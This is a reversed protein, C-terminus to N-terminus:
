IQEFYKKKKEEREPCQSVPHVCSEEECPHGGGNYPCLCRPHTLHEYGDGVGEERGVGQPLLLDKPLNPSQCRLINVIEIAITAGYKNVAERAQDTVESHLPYRNVQHVSGPPTDKNISRGVILAIQASMLLPILFCDCKM